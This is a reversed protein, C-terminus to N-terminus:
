GPRTSMPLGDLATFGMTSDVSRGDIMACASAGAGLHAVIVRGRAVEPWDHRLRQAIYDYSLGHFGYRRIGQEHLYQPIAFRQVVQSHGKHFATDFCAVQRVHPWLARIVRVPALNNHQHLPALPALTELEGLVEDD